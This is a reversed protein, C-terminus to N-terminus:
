KNTSSRATMIIRVTTGKGKESDLQVQWGHAECVNKVYFLGLGFGKVDHRNGTPVRYFKTFLKPILEKEIGIGNDQISLMIRHRSLDQTRIYIIPHAQTYKLANDLLNYLINTLHLRDAQVLHHQTNWETIIRGKNEALRLQVGELTQTVIDHLHLTEKKLKFNDREIRALQLVKEVQDNLRKNQEKIIQAYKFLRPDSQIKQHKLFVDASIKMTSIPTKFEHTMNNIFDKQMESLQKQRLIVFISSTFFILTLVMIVSFVTALPMLNLIQGTRNPFRVGFYYIYKDYTPLQETHVHVDTLPAEQAPRYSVYNGYVMKDNACDYIGYEFDDTLGIDELEKRLLYELTSANIFDNVNVVYYNSSIREILDYAPLPKGMQEFTKAVDLLAINVKDHFEQQKVDWTMKLWYTQIGIIGIIAITGLIVVWAIIGNRM